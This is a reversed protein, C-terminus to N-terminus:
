TLPMMIHKQLKTLARRVKVDQCNIHSMKSKYTGTEYFRCKQAKNVPGYVVTQIGSKFRCADASLHVNQAWM